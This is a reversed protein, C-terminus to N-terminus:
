FTTNEKTFKAATKVPGIHNIYFFIPPNGGELTKPDYEIGIAKLAIRLFTKKAVKFEAGAKKMERRLTTLKTVNVGRFDTFIAIKQKKFRGALEEVIKTKKERTLPM